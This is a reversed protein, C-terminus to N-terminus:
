MFISLTSLVNQVWFTARAGYKHIAAKKPAQTVSNNNFDIDLFVKRDPDIEMSKLRVPMRFTYDKYTNKGDWTKTIKTNDFFTFVIDVPLVMDGLQEVRATSVITDLENAGEYVKQGNKQKWGQFSVENRENLISAQFDCVHTKDITQEFFGELGGLIDECGIKKCYDLFTHIFDTKRPHKFKYEKYYTRMIDDFVDEGLYRKLTQLITATKSYVIGKYSTRINYSIEGPAHVRKNPLSTYENRTFDSNGVRYGGFQYLSQSKGYIDEMIQDEYFTVLGEDLWAEEKENSAVIAMFYQHSFEHVILSELGRHGKPFAYFSGGTIFTPYEMFGNRVAHAPPDMITITSYPYPGVHDHLYQLSGKVAKMLRPVLKKHHPPSLLTIDVQNWSDKYEIFDPYATWAFDIVDHAIYRSEITDEDTHQELLCGSAGIVLNKSTRLTVDYVGFEGYFEMRPLFQHCNWGWDGNIDQEYVGLKPYWHVFLFFDNRSWGSRSITKPLRANFQTEIITKEGPAVPSHLDVHLLTQDNVNGDNPQVYRGRSTIDEGSQIMKDIEVWGWTNKKRGRLDQGFVNMGSNILYSTKNNKFANLYMYFRLHYVSDPSHNTWEIQQSGTITKEDTNLTIDMVYNALRASKIDVSEHCDM